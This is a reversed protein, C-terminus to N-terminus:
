LKSLSESAQSFKPDTKLAAEYAARAGPKDGKKELINGIRTYTRAHNGKPDKELYEHLAALGRDLQEGSIAAIRGINYLADWDGPKERLVNEYLAFADAYKKDAVYLNGYAQTGKRADIKKIAEAQIYAQDMGGGLFGPAQRCYEMLSWRAEIDQPDLEVAKDYAAKCKKAFGLKAFLGAKLASLGAAHGLQLFYQSQTSDLATAKEAAALAKEADNRAIFTEGLFYWAEANAPEAVTLKELIAQAEPWQHQKFLGTIQVRLASDAAHAPIVGIVLLLLIRLMATLVARAM